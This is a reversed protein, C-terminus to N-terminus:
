AATEVAHISNYITAYSVQYHSALQRMSVLGVIGGNIGYLDRCEQIQVETLVRPRGRKPKRNLREAAEFGRIWAARDATLDAAAQAACQEHGPLLWCRVPHTM